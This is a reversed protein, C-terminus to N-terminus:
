RLARHHRTHALERLFSRHGLEGADFEARVRRLFYAIQPSKTRGEVDQPGFRYTKVGAKDESSEVKPAYAAPPPSSATAPAAAPSGSTGGAAGGAPASGSAGPGPSAAPADAPPSPKAAPTGGGRKSGQAARAPAAKGPRQAVAPSALAASAVLLTLCIRPRMALALM